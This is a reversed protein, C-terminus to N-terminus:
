HGVRLQLQRLGRRLSSGLNPGVEEGVAIPCEGLHLQEPEEPRLSEKTAGSPAYDWFSTDPYTSGVVEDTHVDSTSCSTIGM